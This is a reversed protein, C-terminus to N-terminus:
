GVLSQLGPIVGAVSSAKGGGVRDDKRAERDNSRDAGVVM